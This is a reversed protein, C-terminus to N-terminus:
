TRRNQKALAREIHEAARADKDRAELILPAIGRRIEPDALKRIKAEDWGIGGVLGWIQWMLDHEAAYCAATALLEEAMVPEDRAIQPLFVSAYWRGEAVMTTADNHVMHREMLAGVDHGPFDEDRLLAEAWAAYAALGSHRENVIPTRVVKLAWMLAERYTEKLPPKERKEGIIILGPTDKFWDRKRFYGSPEFEVGANFEPIGQFFSWGIVTDGGRDYGAIICAEPPGVVGLGIVPRGKDRISEVIRRRLDDYGEYKAFFRVEESAQHSVGKNGVIEYAHGVAEFARHYPELPDSAMVILDVNAGDWKSPNWLLRFAAGSTGMVYEYAHDEGMFELCAKLSSPFPCLEVKGEHEEYAVRPVGELVVRTPEHASKSENALM